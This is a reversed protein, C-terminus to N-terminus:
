KCVRKGHADISCSKPAPKRRAPKQEVLGVSALAVPVNKAIIRWLEWEAPPAFKWAFHPYVLKYLEQALQEFQVKTM